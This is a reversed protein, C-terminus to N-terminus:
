RFSHWELGRSPPPAPSRPVQSAPSRLPGTPPTGRRPGVNGRLPRPHSARPRPMVVGMPPGPAASAALPSHTRVALLHGLGQARATVAVIVGASGTLATLRRRRCRHVAGEFTAPFILYLAHGAGIKGREDPRDGVQEAAVVLLGVVALDDQREGHETAQVAHQLGGLLGHQVLQRDPRLGAQIGLGNRSLFDPCVKELVDGSSM